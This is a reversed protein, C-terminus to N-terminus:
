FGWTAAVGLEYEATTSGSKREIEIRYVGSGNSNFELIETSDEIDYMGGIYAGNHDFVNADFNANMPFSTNRRAWIDAPNRMVSLAVRVPSGSAASIQLPIRYIGNINGDLADFANWGVRRAGGVSHNRSTSNPNFFYSDANLSGFGNRAGNTVPNTAGAVALAKQRAPQFPLNANFRTLAAITSAVLPASFSTGNVNMNAQPLDIDTGVASVEPKQFGMFDGSLTFNAPTNNDNIAGVALTNPGRSMPSVEQSTP